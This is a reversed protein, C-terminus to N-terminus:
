ANVLQHRSSLDEGGYVITVDNKIATNSAPKTKLASSINSALTNKSLNLEAAFGLGSVLLATILVVIKKMEGGPHSYTLSIM